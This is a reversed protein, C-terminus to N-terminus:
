QSLNGSAESFGGPPTAAAEGTRCDIRAIQHSAFLVGYCGDSRLPRIAVAEGRFAQPVKWLRGRFRIYDKTSPVIRVVEHAEYEVQPLREPMPRPSPHYRSAPVQQGLAQHPREFNYVERWVDFARQVQRLERFQRLAFVEAQLTRHFRENKGRSQPHYPTSHILDVGLKLLWVALRTWGAGGSDGWPSGNDVFMADPLGHQRFTTRLHAQVTETQQDSCAQLCPVYRSHDDVITMPHCRAGSSLAIWGKFDM